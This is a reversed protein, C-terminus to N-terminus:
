HIKSYNKNSKINTIKSYVYPMNNSVGQKNYYLSCGRINNVIIVVMPFTINYCGYCGRLAISAQFLSEDDFVACPRYTIVDGVRLVIRSPRGSYSSTMSCPVRGTHSSTVFSSTTQRMALLNSLFPTM